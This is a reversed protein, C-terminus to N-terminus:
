GPDGEGYLDDDDPDPRDDEHETFDLDPSGMDYDGRRFAREEDVIGPAFIDNHDYMTTM